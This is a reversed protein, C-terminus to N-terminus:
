WEATLICARDNSYVTCEGFGAEELMEWFARANDAKLAAYLESPCHMRAVRKGSRRASRLYAEVDARTEM